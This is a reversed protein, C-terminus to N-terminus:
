GEGQEASDEKEQEEERRQIAENRSRRLIDSFKNFSTVYRLSLGTEMVNQQNASQLQNRNAQSFMKARLKGDRTLMYEVTWDGIINSVMSTNAQDDTSTTSFDGGRTVKLRGDMFTYSLRLQFTEFGQEDLNALDVEVELNEDVQSALYSIQNTLFESLSGGVDLGGGGAPVFGGNPPLFRKFFMLAVVQRKMEQENGRLRALAGTIENTPTVSEDLRIDFEISPSLMPGTLHLVVLVPQKQEAPSTDLNSGGGTPTAQNLDAFSARQLYTAELDLVGAVPDGYWSITSGPVVNFEKNIFNPVTFNYAGETLKLPGFLEFNGNKDLRMKLNGEGRGRIIDGSQIDFILECYADPTVELEFDLTLGFSQKKAELVDEMTRTTDAFNVFSMFDAQEYTGTDDIPLYFKTGRETKVNVKLVLDEFPGTVFIDGSAVATGYFLDNDTSVTNLFSFNRAKIHLDNNIETFNKHTIKGQLTAVDGDFDRLIFDRINIQRPYIDIKGGFDYVTQLYDVKFRGDRVTIGGQVQPQSTSGRIALQGSAAGRVDSLNGTTFVEIMKMDAQDFKVTFDLQEEAEPYFIGDVNITRFNERAVSLWASIGRKDLDYHSTGRIDGIIIEKYVFDRLNFDGDFQVPSEPVKFISFNADFVGSVPIGLVSNFQLLDINKAVFNVETDESESLLGNLSARKDENLLDLSRFLVGRNTFTVHNDPAFQWTQGLATLKSQKFQVDITDPSLDIEAALRVKTDTDPQDIQTTIDIFDNLWVGESKFNYSSPVAKWNQKKSSVMFSALIERTDPAKSAFFDVTNGVFSGDLYAISDATLYASLIADSGERQEIDMELNAGPSVFLDPLQFNTYPRLDGFEATLRAKLTPLVQLSDQHDLEFYDRLDAIEKAIFAGLNTFTYNGTLDLKIGPMKLHLERGLSDVLQTELQFDALRIERASDLKFHTDTIKLTGKLSDPNLHTQQWNIKTHLFIDEETLNLPRTRLTDIVANLSLREPTKRLDLNTRGSVQCNPDKVKFHGYVNNAALFGKFGLSDYSYGKIGVDTASFDTLMTATKQTIGKGIVRGKFTVKQLLLTDGIVRGIDLQRMELHGTYSTLDKDEPVVVNMDAYLGGHPTSVTAKTSFDNIFGAFVMKVDLRDIGQLVRNDIGAYALLDEKAFRAQRVNVDMFTEAIQPLGTLALDADVTSKGTKLKLRDIRIDNVRGRVIADMALDNKLIDRRALTRLDRRGIHSNKLRVYLTVSDMFSSLASPKSYSLRVSDGLKSYPTELHFDSLLIFTDTYALRAQMRKVDLGLVKEQAIFDLIDMSISDPKLRLDEVGLFDIHVDVMEPRQGASKRIQSYDSLSLNLDELSIRKLWLPAAQTTDNPDKSAPGTINQLSQLFVNLNLDTSDTYKALSIHGDQLYIEEVELKKTEILEFLKYNVGVEGLDVLTSDQFDHLNVGHIVIEDFWAIRVKDISIHHDTKDSAWALVKDTLYNQVPATQLLLWVSALLVVVSFVLWFIVKLPLAIWRPINIKQPM